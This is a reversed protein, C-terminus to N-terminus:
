RACAPTYLDSIFLKTNRALSISRFACRILTNYLDFVHRMLAVLLYEASEFFPIFFTIGMDFSKM